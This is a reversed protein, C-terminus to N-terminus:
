RPPGPPGSPAGPPGPPGGAAAVQKPPSAAAKNAKKAPQKAPVAAPAVTVGGAVATLVRIAGFGGIGVIVAGIASGIAGSVRSTDVWLGMGGLVSEILDSVLPMAAGLLDTGVWIVLAAGVIRLDVLRENQTSRWIAFLGLIMLVVAWVFWAFAGTIEGTYVLVQDVM